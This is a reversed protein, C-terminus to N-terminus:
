RELDKPESATGTEYKKQFDSRRLEDVFTGEWLPTGIFYAARGIVHAGVPATLLLFVIAAFSRTSIGLETFAVAVSLFILGIGLTGAKTSCHLRTLFDPMRLVGLAAILMFTSGVVMFVASIVANMM